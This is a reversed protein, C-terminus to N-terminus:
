SRRRTTRRAWVDGKSWISWSCVPLWWSDRRCMVNASQVRGQLLVRTYGLNVQAVVIAAQKAQIDARYLADRTDLATRQRKAAELMTRSSALATEARALDAQNSALMGSSRDADAVALEVPQHTTAKVALLAVQRKHEARRGTWMRKHRPSVPRQPMSQPRPRFSGAEANEIDADQIRKAAQNDKLQAQSAALAAKAQEVTARYDEDDLQVLVQGPSSRKMITSMSKRVTGSIRTSLPTMDARVYADDTRQAAKGGEWSTWCGGITFFLAAAVGLVVVPIIIAQKTM